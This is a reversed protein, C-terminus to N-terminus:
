RAFKLGKEAMKQKLLKLANPGMGHLAAVDAERAKALDALTRYKAEALARQAPAALGFFEANM